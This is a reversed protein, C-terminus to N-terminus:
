RFSAKGSGMLAILGWLGFPAQLICCPLSPFFAALCGVVALVYAKRTLMAIAGILTLFGTLTSLGCYPNGWATLKEAEFAKAMKDMMEREDAQMDPRRQAEFGKSVAENWKAPDANAPVIFGVLGFLNSCTTLIATVLLAVAPASLGDARPAGIYAPPSGTPTFRNGCKPCEVARGFLEPPLKLTNDCAPCRTLEDAMIPGM